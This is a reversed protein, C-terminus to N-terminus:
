FNKINKQDKKAQNQNIVNPYKAIHQTTKEKQRVINAYNLETKICVDRNWDPKIIPKIRLKKNDRKVVVSAKKINCVVPENLHNEHNYVLNPIVKKHTVETNSLFIKGESSIIWPESIERKKNYIIINECRSFQNYDFQQTLQQDIKDYYKQYKTMTAEKIREVEQEQSVVKSKIKKREEIDGTDLVEDANITQCTQYLQEHQKYLEALHLKEKELIAQKKEVTIIKNQSGISRIGNIHFINKLDPYLNQITQSSNNQWGIFMYRQYKYFSLDWRYDSDLEKETQLETQLKTQDLPWQMRNYTMTKLDYKNNIEWTLSKTLKYRQYKYFNLWKNIEYFMKEDERLIMMNNGNPIKNYLIQREDKLEAIEKTLDELNQLNVKNVNKM